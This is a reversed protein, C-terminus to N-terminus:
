IYEVEDSRITETGVIKKAGLGLRGIKNQPVELKGFEGANWPLVGAAYMINPVGLAKWVGRVVEYKNARFKVASGLRGFWQNCIFIKDTKAKGFGNQCVNIGIYKYKYHIFPM